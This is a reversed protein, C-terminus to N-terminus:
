DGNEPFGIVEIKPYQKLEAKKAKVRDEYTLVCIKDFGLYGVFTFIDGNVHCLVSGIDLVPIVVTATVGRAALLDQLVEQNEELVDRALQREKFGETERGLPGHKKVDIGAKKFAENIQTGAGVCIVVFFEAALKRVWEIVDDRGCLDGSVKVLATKRVAASVKKAM